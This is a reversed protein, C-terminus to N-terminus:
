FYLFSLMILFSDAKRCRINTNLSAIFKVTKPMDTEHGHVHLTYSGGPPSALTNIPSPPHINMSKNLNQGVLNKQFLARAESGAAM